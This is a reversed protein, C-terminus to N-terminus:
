QLKKEVSLGGIAVAMVWKSMGSDAAQTFSSLIFGYLFPLLKHYSLSKLNNLMLM